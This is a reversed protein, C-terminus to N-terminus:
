RFYISNIYIGVNLFRLMDYHLFLNVEYNQKQKLYDLWYWFM